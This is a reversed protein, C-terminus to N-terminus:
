FWIPLLNIEGASYFLWAGFIGMVCLTPVGILIPVFFGGFWSRSEKPENVPHRKEYWKGFIFIGVIFTAFLITSGLAGFYHLVIGSGLFVGIGLAIALIIAIGIAGFFIVQFLMVAIFIVIAKKWSMGETELALQSATTFRVM